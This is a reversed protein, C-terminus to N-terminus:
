GLQRLTSNLKAGFEVDAIPLYYSIPLYDSLPLYTGTELLV